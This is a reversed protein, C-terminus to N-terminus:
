GSIRAHVRSRHVKSIGLWRVLTTVKGLIDHAKSSIIGCATIDLNMFICIITHEAYPNHVMQVSWHAGLKGLEDRYDSM